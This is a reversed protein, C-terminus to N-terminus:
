KNGFYLGIGFYLRNDQFKYGGFIDFWYISMGGRVGYRTNDM